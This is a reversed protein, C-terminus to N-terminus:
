AWAGAGPGRRTGACHASRRLARAKKSPNSLDQASHRHFAGEPLQSAAGGVKKRRLARGTLLYAGAFPRPRDHPAIVARCPAMARARRIASSSSDRTRASIARYRRLAPNLWAANPWAHPSERDATARVSSPVRRAVSASSAHRPAV